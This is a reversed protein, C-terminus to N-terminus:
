KQVYYFYALSKSNTVVRYFQLWLVNMFVHPGKSPLPKELLLDFCLSIDTYFQKKHSIRHILCKTCKKTSEAWQAVGREVIGKRAASSTVDHFWSLLVSWGRRTEEHRIPIIGRTGEAARLKTQIIVHLYQIWNILM